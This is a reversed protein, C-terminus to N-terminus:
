VNMERLWELGLSLLGPLPQGSVRQIGSLRDDNERHMGSVALDGEAGVSITFMIGNDLDWDFDVNGNPDASVEPPSVDEPLQAIVQKAIDITKAQVPHAGQKDWNPSRAINQLRALEDECRKRQESSLSVRSLGSSCLRFDSLVMSNPTLFYSTSIISKDRSGDDVGITKNLDITALGLQRCYHVDHTKKGDNTGLPPNDLM